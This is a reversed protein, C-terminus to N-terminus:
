NVKLTVEGTILSTKTGDEREVLLGFDDGVGLVTAYYEDSSTLVKVRKGVLFCRKRYGGLVKNRNNEELLGLIKETIRASLECRDLRMGCESEIDTAISEVGERVGRTVNLGIGVVAYKMKESSPLASGETLIGCLKKEGIYIDNVWKIKPELPTMEEIVSCVAVAALATLYGGDSLSLNPYLLLSMYLGCGAPSTFSRGLRGRGSTQSDAIILTAKVSDQHSKAETNTSPITDFYIVEPLDRVGLAALSKEIKEASIPKKNKKGTLAM